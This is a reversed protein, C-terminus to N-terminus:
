VMDINFLWITSCIGLGNEMSNTHAMIRGQWALGPQPQMTSRVPQREYGGIKKALEWRKALQICNIAVRKIGYQNAYTHGRWAVDIYIYIHAHINYLLMYIYIYIYHIYIYTYVCVDTHTYACIHTHTLIKLHIYMYMDIIYIYIYSHNDVESPVPTGSRQQGLGNGVAQKSTPCGPSRDHTMPYFITSVRQYVYLFSHFIVM